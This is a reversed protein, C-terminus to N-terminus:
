SNTGISTSTLITVYGLPRDPLERIRSAITTILPKYIYKNYIYAPHVTSELRASFRQHLKIEVHMAISLRVPVTHIWFSRAIRVCPLHTTETRVYVYFM